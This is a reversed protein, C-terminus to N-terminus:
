ETFGISKMCEPNDEAIREIFYLQDVTADNMVFDRLTDLNHLHRENPTLDEKLIYLNFYKLVYEIVGDGWSVCSEAHRVVMRNFKDYVRNRFM